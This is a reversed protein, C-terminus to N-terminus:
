RNIHNREDLREKLQKNEKHLRLNEKAAYQLADLMEEHLMVQWDYADDPCETLTQGYTAVGKEDREDLWENIKDRVTM